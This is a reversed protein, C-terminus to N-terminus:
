QSKKFNKKLSKGNGYFKELVNLSFMFCYQDKAKNINEREKLSIKILTSKCCEEVEFCNSSNKAKRIIIKTLTISITGFELNENDIYLKKDFIIKSM